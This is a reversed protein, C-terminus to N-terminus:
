SFSPRVHRGHLVRGASATRTGPRDPSARAAPRARCTSSRPNATRSSAFPNITRPAAAADAGSKRCRRRRVASAGSETPSPIAHRGTRRSPLPRNAPVPAGTACTRGNSCRALARQQADAVLRLAEVGAAAPFRRALQGGHTVRANRRGAAARSGGSREQLTRAGGTRRRRSCPQGCCTSSSTATTETDLKRGLIADWLVHQDARGDDLAPEAAPRHAGGPRRRALVDM